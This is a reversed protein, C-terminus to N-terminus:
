SIRLSGIHSFISIQLSNKLILNETRNQNYKERGFPFLNNANEENKGKLQLKWFNWNLTSQITYNEVYMEVYMEFCM